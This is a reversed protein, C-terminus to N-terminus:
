MFTAKAIKTTSITRIPTYGVKKMFRICVTVNPYTFVITCSKSRKKGMIVRMSADMSVMGIKLAIRLVLWL